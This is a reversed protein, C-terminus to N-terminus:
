NWAFHFQKSLKKPTHAAKSKTVCENTSPTVGRPDAAGLSTVVTGTISEIYIYLYAFELQFKWIGLFVKSLDVLIVENVKLHGANAYM